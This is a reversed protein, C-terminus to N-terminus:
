KAFLIEASAEEIVHQEMEGFVFSQWVAIYSNTINSLKLM